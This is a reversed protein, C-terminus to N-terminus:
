KQNEDNKELEKIKEKLEIVKLERDIMIKNFREIEKLREKLNNNTAVEKTKLKRENARSVSLGELLSNFTAAFRGIEDPQGEDIRLNIDKTSSINEVQQTLKLFRSVLLKKSVYNIIVSLLFIIILSTSTFITITKIGNRYVDRPETIKIIGVPNKNLDHILGFIAITESDKNIFTNQGQALVQKVTVLEPSLNPDDYLHLEFSLQTIDRIEELEHEGILQSFILTGSPTKEELSDLIQASSIISVGEQTKIIGSVFENTSSLKTLQDYTLIEATLNINNTEVIGDGDIHKSYVVDNDSNLFIICNIGINILSSDNLNSDIYAQNKDQVFFYTDDWHSWDLLSTQLQELSHVTASKARAFDKQVAETEIENYSIILFTSSILIVLTALVVTSSFIILTIKTKISM